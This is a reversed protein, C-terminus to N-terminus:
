PFVAVRATMEQIDDYGPLFVLITGFVPSDALYKVVHDVLHHNISHEYECGYFMEYKEAFRLKSFDIEAVKPLVNPHYYIPRESITYKMEERFKKELKLSFTHKEGFGFGFGGNSPGLRGLGSKSSSPTNPTLPSHPSIPTEPLQPATALAAITKNIMHPQLTGPKVPRTCEVRVHCNPMSGRDLQQKMLVDQPQNPNTTYKVGDIYVSLPSEPRIDIVMPRTDPAGVLNFFQNMQQAPILDGDSTLYDGSMWEGSANRVTNNNTGYYMGDQHYYSQNPDCMIPDGNDVYPLLSVQGGLTMVPPAAEPPMTNAPPGKEEERIAQLEVEWDDADFDIPALFATNIPPEYASMALIQELHFIKVDFSRAEIRIVDVKYKEFYNVFLAMNGEITASMLIVKLDRRKKLCERLAILLYDTNTEREHIEDMIIHTIGSAIPDATLMRLLVGSTCYTLLTKDSQRFLYTRSQISLNSIIFELCLM